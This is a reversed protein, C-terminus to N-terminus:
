QAIEWAISFSVGVEYSGSGLSGVTRNVYYTWASGGSQNAGPAYTVATTSGPFDHYLMTSTQPTSNYDSEYVMPATIGSWVQNGQITNYGAYTGAPISGNKFLKMTWDHGSGGEGFIQFQCLILSNAFKPTISVRLDTFETGTGSCAYALQTDTRKVQCQVVSGPIYVNGAANVTLAQAGATNQLTDFRMISAM